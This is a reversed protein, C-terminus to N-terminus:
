QHQCKEEVITLLTSADMCDCTAAPVDFTSTTQGNDECVGQYEAGGADTYDCAGGVRHETGDCDMLVQFKCGYKACDGKNPGACGIAVGVDPCAAGDLGNTGGDKGGFPSGDKGFVSGDLSSTADFSSSGDFLDSGAIESRAGCACVFLAVFVARKM